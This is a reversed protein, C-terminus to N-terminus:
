IKIDQDYNVMTLNDQDYRNKCIISIKDWEIHTEIGLYTNWIIDKKGILKM